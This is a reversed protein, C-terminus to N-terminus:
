IRGHLKVLRFGVAAAQDLISLRDGAMLRMALSVVRARDARDVVGVARLARRALLRVSPRAERSEALAALVMLPDCGQLGGPDPQASM